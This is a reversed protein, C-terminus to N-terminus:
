KDIKENGRADLGILNLGEIGKQDIECSGGANLKQLSKIWSVDKIKKNNWANLEILNLGEIGKQDIGCNCSANLIQLTKIWSVDKIKKNDNANLYKLNRFKHQRLIDDSLKGKLANDIHYLDVIYLNNHFFCCISMLRIISRLELYKIIENQWVDKQYLLSNEM